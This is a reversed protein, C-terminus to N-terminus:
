PQPDILRPQGPVGLPSNTSSFGIVSCAPAPGRTVVVNDEYRYTTQNTAVAGMGQNANSYDNWIFADYGNKLQLFSTNLNRVDIILRENFWIKISANATNLNAYEARVCGWAGLPFDRSRNYERTDARVYLAVTDVCYVNGLVINATAMAAQCDALTKGPVYRLFHQFPDQDSLDAGNHFLFPGDNAGTLAASWENHKWPQNWIGSAGSNSAYGVAM